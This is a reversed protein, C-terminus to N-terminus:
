YRPFSPLFVRLTPQSATNHRQGKLTSCAKKAPASSNQTCVPARPLTNLRRRRPLFRFPRQLSAVRCRVQHRYVVGNCFSWRGEPSRSQQAPEELMIRFTSGAQWQACEIRRVCKAPRVYPPPPSRNNCQQRFVSFANHRSSQRSAAAIFASSGFVGKADAVQKLRCYRHYSSLTQSTRRKQNATHAHDERALCETPLM